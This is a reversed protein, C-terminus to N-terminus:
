HIKITKQGLAQFTRPISLLTDTDGTIIKLESRVAEFEAETTIHHELLAHKIKELTLLAMQKAPGGTGAPQAIQVQVDQLGAQKLLSPLQIGLEANGGTMSVLATYWQVYTDFARNAPYCIHGSFQIDEVVLIGGPKLADVLKAIVGAPNDLHSLLYRSFVIDYQEKEDFAYIDAQRFTINAIGSAALEQRNLEIIDGDYDIGTVHGTQGVTQAISYTMSGGGCGADLVSLGASLGAKRLTDMSYENMARGLVNLRNKGQEGGDIVYESM